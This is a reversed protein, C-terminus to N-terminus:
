ILRRVNSGSSINMNRFDFNEILNIGPSKGPAISGYKEDVGLASAGNFTAWRILETFSITPFHQAILQMEYLISLKTNSALSDTGLALPIGSAVLRSVPPMKGEIYLNSAPCLVLTVRNFHQKYTHLDKDTAHTNHVLLVPIDNALVATLLKAVPKGAPVYDPFPIGYDEFLNAMDGTGNEIFEQEHIGEQSHLSILNRNNQNNINQLLSYTASYLSHPSLSASLGQALFKDKVLKAKMILEEANSTGPIEIFTHYKINSKAKCEISNITNSIDGVVNIGQRFMQKDSKEILEPINTQRISRNDFVQRIFGTLSKLRKIKQHLHSLELHCHANVFGPVLVGNYFEVHAEEKLLPQVSIITGEENVEIVGNKIPKGTASYVYNAAIKRM